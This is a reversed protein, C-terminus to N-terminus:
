EEIAQEWKSAPLLEGSAAFYAAEDVAIYVGREIHSSATAVILGDDDIAAAIAGFDPDVFVRTRM